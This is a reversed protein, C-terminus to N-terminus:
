FITEDAIVFINLDVRYSIILSAWFPKVFFLYIPSHSSLIFVLFVGAKRKNISKSFANSENSHIKLSRERTCKPNQGSM